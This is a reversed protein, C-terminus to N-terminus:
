APAPDPLASQRSFPHRGMWLLVETIILDITCHIPEHDGTIPRAKWLLLHYCGWVVVCYVEQIGMRRERRSLFAQKAQANAIGIKGQCLKLFINMNQVSKGKVIHAENRIAKM